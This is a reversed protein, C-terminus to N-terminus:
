AGLLPLSGARMHGSIAWLVVGVLILTFSFLLRANLEERSSAPQMPLSIFFLMGFAFCMGGSFCVPM